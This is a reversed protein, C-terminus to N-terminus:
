GKRKHREFRLKKNVLMEVSENLTTDEEKIQNRLMRRVMLIEGSPIEEKVEEYAHNEKNRMSFFYTMPRSMQSM